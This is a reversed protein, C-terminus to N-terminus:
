ARKQWRTAEARKLGNRKLGNRKLDAAHARALPRLEVPSFALAGM